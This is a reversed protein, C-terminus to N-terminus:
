QGKRLIVTTSNKKTFYKKAVEVIDQVQLKDINEEYHLLPTIDGKAYYDGFVSALTSSNELSFIFDAKTNIKIKELEKPDIKGEKIKEIESWIEKEIEEATIGPNATAMFLFLGPDITEFNYAYIQNAMKKEDVLKQYLRSSKGSSLLESIASLAVQDPSQFNPIHFAIALMQVQSDRNLVIRKEGDQPPEIQHVKPIDCCNKINEFHKKALDFVTEKDIDGAVVLIANKPQYYTRHFARIDEIKWHLIDQMFGIPTWHYPHYIFANNFLRFYLYGMPNNDTRWRREEAVVERETAFEKEDLKLNAMLEAFLWLSKDLNKSSCKIFYHTYDFGTSANDVGGFSKVIEDFEGAKLNKTSKFNLHELMHAIGSKGMVENRSGVRYFIDVSIVQTDNRMPIVVVKMGNKLTSEYHKPLSSAMLGGVILLISLIIRM